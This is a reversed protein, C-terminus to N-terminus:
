TPSQALVNNGYGICNVTQNILSADTGTYIPNYLSDSPGNISVPTQLRLVAFDDAGIGPLNGETVVEATISQDVNAPGDSRVVFATNLAAAWTGTYGRVCHRATLVLRNSLLTGSCGGGSSSIIVVGTAQQSGDAPLTGNIIEGEWRATTGADEEPGANACGYALALLLLSTPGRILERNM